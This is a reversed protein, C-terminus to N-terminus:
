EGNKAKHIAALNSICEVVGWTFMLICLASVSWRGWPLAFYDIAMAVAFFAPPMTVIEPFFSFGADESRNGMSIQAINNVAGFMPYSLWFLAILSILIWITM